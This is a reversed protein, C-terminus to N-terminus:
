VLSKCNFLIKTIVIKPISSATTENFTEV